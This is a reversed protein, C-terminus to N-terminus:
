MVMGTKDSADDRHQHYQNHDEKELISSLCVSMEHVIELVVIDTSKSPKKNTIDSMQFNSVCRVFRQFSGMRPIKIIYDFNHMGQLKRAGDANERCVNVIVALSFLEDPCVSQLLLLAETGGPGWSIINVSLDGIM